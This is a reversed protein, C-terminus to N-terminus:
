EYFRGEVADAIQEADHGCWSLDQCPAGTGSLMDVIPTPNM